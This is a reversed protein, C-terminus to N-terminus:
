MGITYNPEYSFLDKNYIHRCVQRITADASNMRCNIVTKQGISNEIILSEDALKQTIRCFCDESACIIQELAHITETKLADM